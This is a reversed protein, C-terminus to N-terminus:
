IGGAIAAVGIEGGRYVPQLFGDGIGAGPIVHALQKGPYRHQIPPASAGGRGEGLPVHPIHQDGKFVLGNQDVLFHAAVLEVHHIRRNRDFGGRGHRHHALHHVLAAGAALGLGIEVEQVRRRGLLDDGAVVEPGPIFGNQAFVGALEGLDLGEAHFVGQAAPLLGLLKMEGVPADVVLDDGSALESKAVRCVDLSRGGGPKVGPPPHLHYLCAARCEERIKRIKANMGPAWKIIGTERMRIGAASTAPSSSMVEVAPVMWVPLTPILVVRPMRDLSSISGPTYKLSGRMLVTCSNEALSMTISMESRVGLALSLRDRRSMSTDM